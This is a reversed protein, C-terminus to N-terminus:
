KPKVDFSWIAMQGDPNIITLRKKPQSSIKSSGSSAQTASGSTAAGASEQSSTTAGPGVPDFLDPKLANRTLWHSPNDMTLRLEAAYSSPDPSNDDKRVVLLEADASPSPSASSVEQVGVGVLKTTVSADQILFSAERSLCRGVIEIILSGQQAVISDIVPGPKRALKGGLYGASSVGMLYLFSEPIRPLEQFQAPAQAVILFIFALVGLVTWVFFQFREASVVGGVTIFDSMSPQIEGAGKPGRVSTIGKAIASTSGSVLLLGPLNEPVAAFEFRGQILSRTLLLYVYGFIAGATWGYLQFKALSYSDTEPDLLLTTLVNHTQDEIKTRKVGRGVLLYVLLVILAVVGVSAGFPVASKYGSLTIPVPPDSYRDGVRIRIREAGWFKGPIGQFELKHTSHFIGRVKGPKATESTWAATIEDRGELVLVNDEPVESFGDGLVVIDYVGERPFATVPEGASLILPAKLDRSIELPVLEAAPDTPLRSVGIYYDGLKLSVPITFTCGKRDPAISASVVREATAPVAQRGGVADRSSYAERMVVFLENDKDDLGTLTLSITTGRVGAGPSEIKAIRLSERPRPKEEVKTTPGPNTGQNVLFALSTVLPLFIM